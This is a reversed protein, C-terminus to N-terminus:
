YGPNQPLLNPNRGLEDQPLPLLYDRTADFNPHPELSRPGTFVEVGLDRRQIDYWRKFEFALELRREELIADRLGAQGLGAALDEPFTNTATGDTNRARTRIQNVYDLIEDESGNLENQAEAAILLIEAFRMGIYNNDSNSCDGSAAGCKKFYKGIHPRASNFGLAFQDPGVLEGDGNFAETIFSVEKRYDNDDWADFVAQSPVIVSWGAASPNVSPDNNPVVEGPGTMPGMFDTGDTINGFDVFFLFEETGDQFAPDYNSAYDAVLDLGFTGKNDIIFKANDYAAQWNELTLYVSALYGAAVAKTARSKVGGQSDPLNALGFEM